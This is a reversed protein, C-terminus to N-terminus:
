IDDHVSVRVIAGQAVAHPIFARPNSSRPSITQDFRQGDPLTFTVHVWLCFDNHISVTFGGFPHWTTPDVHAEVINIRVQNSLLSVGAGNTMRIAAGDANM